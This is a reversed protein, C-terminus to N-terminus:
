ILFFHRINTTKAEVLKYNIMGMPKFKKFTELDTVITIELKLYQKIQAVCRETLKHYQTDPNDFCYILVGTTM